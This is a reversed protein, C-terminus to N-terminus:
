WREIFFNGTKIFNKRILVHTLGANSVGAVNYGRDPEGGAWPQNKGNNDFVGNVQDIVVSDGNEFHQELYFGSRGHWSTNLQDVNESWGRSNPIFTTVSDTEDGNPEAWHIVMDAIELLEPQQPRESGDDRNHLYYQERQFDDDGCIVFSEGPQLERQPFFMWVNSFWPDNYLDIIAATEGYPTLKGLKFNGMEIPTDGVNTIEILTETQGGSAWETFLLTRITDEQAFAFGCSFVLTFLLLKFKM